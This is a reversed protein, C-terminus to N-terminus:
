SKAQETLEAMLQLAALPTLTNVDIARLREVAVHLEAPVFLGLQGPSALASRSRKAAAMAPALAPVLHEAEGELLALVTR